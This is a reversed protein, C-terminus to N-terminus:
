PYALDLFRAVRIGMFNVVAWVIMAMLGWSVNIAMFLQWGFFTMLDVQTYMDSLSPSGAWALVILLYTFCRVLVPGAADDAMFKTSAFLVGLILWLVAYGTASIGGLSDVPPMLAVLQSCLSVAAAGLKVCLIMVAPVVVFILVVAACIGAAIIQSLSLKPMVKFLKM